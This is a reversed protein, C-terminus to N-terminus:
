NKIKPAAAVKEAPKAKLDAIYDYLFAAVLAGLVPGVLYIPFQWWYNAGGALVDVLYPGFTRAPNLSGGTANFGLVICLSAMVGITLGALGQPARKDVATGMIALVLMFTTIAEILIAQWYEIGTGMVTAGLGTDVSRTGFLAVVALSALTAGLLQSAMYAIADATPLRRTAWMAISVAPNIHTGSIHGFVYAMVAIALGFTLGIALVGATDIGQGYLVVSVVAGTGLFVLVFTGILEAICRKTLSIEAM